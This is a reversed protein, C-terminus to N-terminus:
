EYAARTVDRILSRLLAEVAEHGPSSVQSFRNRSWGGARRENGRENARRTMPLPPGWSSEVASKRVDAGHTAPDSVQWQRTRGM